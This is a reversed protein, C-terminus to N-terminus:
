KRLTSNLRSPRVVDANVRATFNEIVDELEEDESEDLNM